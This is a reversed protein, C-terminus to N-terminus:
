PLRAPKRIAAADGGIVYLAQGLGDFVRTKMAEMLAALMPKRDRLTRRYGGGADHLAASL